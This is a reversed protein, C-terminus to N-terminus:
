CWRLTHNCVMSFHTVGVWNRGQVTRFGAFQLEKDAGMLYEVAASKQAFHCATGVLVRKEKSELHM